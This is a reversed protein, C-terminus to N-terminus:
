RDEENSDINILFFGLFILFILNIYLFLLQPVLNPSRAVNKGIFLLKWCMCFPPPLKSVNSFFVFFFGLGLGMEKLPAGGRKREDEGLQRERGQFLFGEGCCGDVPREGEELGLGWELRQERNRRGCGDGGEGCCGTVKRERNCM